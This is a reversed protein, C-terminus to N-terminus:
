RSAVAMSCVDDAPRVNVYEEIYASPMVEPEMCAGRYPEFTTCMDEFATAPLQTTAIYFRSWVNFDRNDEPFAWTLPGEIIYHALRFQMAWLKANLGLGAEFQSAREATQAGLALLRSYLHVEDWFRARTAETGTGGFESMANTFIICAFSGDYVVYKRIIRFDERWQEQSPPESSCDYEVIPQREATESGRYVCGKGALAPLDMALLGLGLCTAVSLALAGGALFGVSRRLAM